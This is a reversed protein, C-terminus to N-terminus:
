GITPSMVFKNASAPTIDSHNFTLSVEFIGVAHQQSPSALAHYDNYRLTAKVIWGSSRFEIIRGKLIDM